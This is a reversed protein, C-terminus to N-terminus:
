TLKNSQNTTKKTWIQRGLLPLYESWKEGRILTEREIKSVANTQSDLFDIHHLIIAELTKPVIPSGKELEGHHSIIGHLIQLRLDDPFNEIESITKDVLLAGQVLHGILKGSDSYEVFLQSQSLEEIKGIDHLFCLTILLDRNVNPYLECVTEAIKMMEYTHRLLGGRLNHHWRKAAPARIFGQIIHPNSRIKEILKKLWINSVSDLINWFEKQFKEIPEQPIVLDDISYHESTLPIINTAHIQLQEKYLKVTGKIVVVDGVSLKESVEIPNERLIGGIEGTKDQVVFGLFKGGSPQDRLDKRILLFYDNIQDGEHLDAVYQYKM